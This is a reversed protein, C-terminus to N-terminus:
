KGQENSSQNMIYELEGRFNEKLWEKVEKSREEVNDVIHLIFATREDERVDKLFASINNLQVPTFDNLPFTKLQEILESKKDSNFEKLKKAVKKYDNIIDKINIIVTSEIYKIFKTISGGIYSAGVEKLDEMWETHPANMSYNTVIFDSLFTWSRPTAYARFNENPKGNLQEPNVRIYDVILPHINETAYEEIWEQPELVHKLHVLRNNLAADFEEVDTNDDEGLNGSSVMFVNENFKFEYGIERELLLQLAANRVNQSARNLEEFHVITPKQNAIHAWKPVVFSLVHMKTEVGDRNKMSVEDKHPYLGVDTEDIMSLRLDIYQFDLKRAISRMTASKAVGPEATIYLVGSQARMVSFYKKEKKSLTAFKTADVEFKAKKM